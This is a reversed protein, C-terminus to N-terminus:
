TPAGQEHQAKTYDQEVWVTGFVVAPARRVVDTIRRSYSHRM